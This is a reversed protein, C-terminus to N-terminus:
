YCCDLITRRWQSLEREWLFAQLGCVRSRDGEDSKIKPFKLNISLLELIISNANNLAFWQFKSHFSQLTVHMTPHRIGRYTISTVSRLRVSVDNQDSNRRKDILFVTFNNILVSTKKRLFGIFCKHKKYCHTRRESMACTILWVCDSDLLHFHCNDGGTLLHGHQAMYM